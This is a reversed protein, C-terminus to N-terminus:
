LVCFSALINREKSFFAVSRSVTANKQFSRIGLGTGFWGFISLFILLLSFVTHVSNSFNAFFQLSIYVINSFIQSFQFNLSYKNIPHLPNAYIVYSKWEVRDLCLWRIEIKASKKRDIYPLMCWIHMCSYKYYRIFLLIYITLRYFHSLIDRLIRFSHHFIHVFRVFKIDGDM